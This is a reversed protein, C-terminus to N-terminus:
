STGGKKSPASKSLRLRAKFHGRAAAFRIQAAPSTWPRLRLFARAVRLWFGPLSSPAWPRLGHLDLMALWSIQISEALRSLYGPEMRGRPILHCLKLTPFYGCAWGRELVHAVLDNDGSSSLQSGKRDSLVPQQMAQIWSTICERRLVLGAGVPTAKPWSQLAGPEQSAFLPEPGLNRLALLDYFEPLWDAPSTEFEPEIPGGAAGLKPHAEFCRLTEELYDTALLNDDDVFVMLEAQSERIGRLRAFSLGLRPEPIRRLRPITQLLKEPFTFDPGSANDILLVEWYKPPLTQAALAELCRQLRGLHPRHTCLLVSLRPPQFSEPM